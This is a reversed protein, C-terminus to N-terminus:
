ANKNRRVMNEAHNPFEGSVPPKARLKPKVAGRRQANNGRRQPPARPRVGPQVNVAGRLGASLDGGQWRSEDKALVEEALWL